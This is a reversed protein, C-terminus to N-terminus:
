KKNCTLKAVRIYIISYYIYDRKTLDIAITTILSSNSAIRYLLDVISSFTQDLITSSYIIYYTEKFSVKIPLGILPCFLKTAQIVLLSNNIFISTFLRTAQIILLLRNISSSTFLELWKNPNISIPNRHLLM